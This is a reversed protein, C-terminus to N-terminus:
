ACVLTSFGGCIGNLAYLQNDQDVNSYNLVAEHIEKNEIQGTHVQLLGCGWLPGM